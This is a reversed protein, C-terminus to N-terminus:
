NKCLYKKLFVRNKMDQLDRNSVYGEYDAILM